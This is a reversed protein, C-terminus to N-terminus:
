IINNEVKPFIMKKYRFLIIEKKTRAKTVSRCLNTCICNCPSLLHAPIDQFGRVEPAPLAVPHYRDLRDVRVSLHFPRRHLIRRCPLSLNCPLRDITGILAETKFIQRAILYNSPYIDDNILTETRSRICVFKKRKKSVRNSRSSCM